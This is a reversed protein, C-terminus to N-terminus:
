RANLWDQAEARQSPPFFRVEAQKAVDAIRPQEDSWKADAIVAAKRVADGIFRNMMTGVTKAGKEWGELKEWDALLCFGGREGGRIHVGVQPYRAELTDLAADLDAESIMGVMEITLIRNEDDFKLEIM